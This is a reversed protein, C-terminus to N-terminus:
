DTQRVDPRCCRPIAVSSPRQSRIQLLPRALDPGDAFVHAIVAASINAGHPSTVSTEPRPTLRISGVTIDSLYARRDLQLLYQM